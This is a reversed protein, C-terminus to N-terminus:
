GGAFPLGEPLVRSGPPTHASTRTVAGSRHLGVPSKGEMGKSARCNQAGRLTAAKGMMVQVPGGEKCTAYDLGVAYDLRTWSRCVGSTIEPVKYSTTSPQLHDHVRLLRCPLGACDQRAAPKVWRRRSNNLLNKPGSPQERDWSSRRLHSATKSGSCFRQDVLQSSTLFSKILATISSHWLSGGHFGKTNILVLYSM